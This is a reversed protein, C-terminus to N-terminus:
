GPLPYYETLHGHSKVREKRALDQEDRVVEVGEQSPLIVERMTEVQSGLVAGLGHKHELLGAPLAAHVLPPLALAPGPGEDPTALLRTRLCFVNLDLTVFRQCWLPSM